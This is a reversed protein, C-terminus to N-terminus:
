LYVTHSPSRKTDQFIPLNTSICVEQDLLICWDTWRFTGINLMPAPRVFSGKLLRGPYLSVSWGILWYILWDALKTSKVIEVVIVYVYVALILMLVDISQYYLVKCYPKM